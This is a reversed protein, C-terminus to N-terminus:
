KEANSLMLKLRNEQNVRSAGPDYDIAVINIDPYREKIPKMMGKGCVHNPLCGFPQACVINKVGSRYLEIIENTLLWGEGMKVAPSIFEDALGIVKEFPTWPRFTGQQKVIAIIDNKVRCILRLALKMLPYVARSTHYVQYDVIENQIIYLIFDMLGPTTVEAGEKVLFDELHNNALPSYKVYIEGVVGVQIADRKERMPLAAFSDVIERCCQRFHRYNVRRGSGLEKGLRELWTHLLEGAAGKQLEYPVTQSQLSMLLDGYLVAYVLKHLLPLTLQFGSHKELGAFSMSIVPVFELGAKKLAKRILSIYNSARCGGGTQFYVLAVRHVDYKGSLLANMFQGIICLAPYCADNHTYKLGTEIIEPETGKLLEVHYGFTNMVRVILEFQIPTMNPCLITYGQEKMEKTFPVYDLEQM